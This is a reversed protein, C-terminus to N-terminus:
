NGNTPRAEGISHRKRDHQCNNSRATQTGSIQIAGSSGEWVGTQITNTRDVEQLHYQIGV